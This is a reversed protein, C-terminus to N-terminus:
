KSQRKHASEKKLLSCASKVMRCAARTGLFSPTARQAGLGSTSQPGPLRADPLRHTTWAAGTHDVSTWSLLTEGDACRVVLLLRSDQLRSLTAEGPSTCRENKLGDISARLDWEFPDDTSDLIIVAESGTVSACEAVMIHGQGTAEIVDQTYGFKAPTWMRKPLERASIWRCVVNFVQERICFFM